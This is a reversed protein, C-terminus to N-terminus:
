QLLEALDVIRGDTTLARTPERSGTPVLLAQIGKADWQALSAPDVSSDLHPDFIFDESFNHHGPRYTQSFYDHLM